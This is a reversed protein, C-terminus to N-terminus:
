ALLSMSTEAEMQWQPSFLGVPSYDDSRAKEDETAISQSLQACPLSYAV